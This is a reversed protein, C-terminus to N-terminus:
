KKRQFIDIAKKYIEISENAKRELTLNNQAMHRANQTIRNRLADNELLEIVAMALEDSSDPEILLTNERDKFYEKFGGVNTVIAPCGCLISEIAVTGGPEFLSPFITVTSKQYCEAVEKQPIPDIFKINYESLYSRMYQGYTQEKRRLKDKGVFIFKADPIKQAIEPIAEIIVEIGKTKELRGVFLVTKELREMSSHPKFVNQDVGLHSIVLNREHIRFTEKFEDAFNQSVASVIDASDCFMRIWQQLLWQSPRKSYYGNSFKHEMGHFGHLRVVLPFKRNFVPYFGDFDPVEVVDVHHEKIIQKLFKKVNWHHILNV